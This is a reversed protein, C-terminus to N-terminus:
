LSLRGRHLDEAPFLPKHIMMFIQLYAFLLRHEWLLNKIGSYILAQTIKQLMEVLFDSKTM